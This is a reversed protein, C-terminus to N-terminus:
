LAVRGEETWAEIMLAAMSRIRRAAAKANRRSKFPGRYTPNEGPWFAVIWWTM